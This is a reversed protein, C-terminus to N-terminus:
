KADEMELDEDEGDDVQRRGSTSKVQAPEPGGEVGYKAELSKRVFALVAQAAKQATAQADILEDEDFRGVSEVGVGEGEVGGVGVGFSFAFLHCSVSRSEEDPTPDLMMETAADENVGSGEKTPVFAVAVAILMGRSSVGADVLALMAANIRAASESTGRGTGYVPEHRVVDAASGTTAASDFTSSTPVTSVPKSFATTPSSMTQVTLQILSRPYSQLLILPTLLSSLQMEATKSSPGPLGRLPRVNVEFTATHVLEDRIRVETPGTLSALVSVNGFAFKASGDVRSLVSLSLELPRLATATRGDVRSM